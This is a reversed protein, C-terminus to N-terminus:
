QTEESVASQNPWGYVQITGAMIARSGEEYYTMNEQIFDKTDQPLRYSALGDIVLWGRPSANVITELDGADEICSINIYQEYGDVCYQGDTGAIDFALWFDPEQEMYFSGVAPWTDIVIDGEEFNDNIFSYALKFDPQPATLELWHDSQPLFSFGAGYLSLGVILVTLAPSLWSKQLASNTTKATGGAHKRLSHALTDCIYTVTYAFYIFLIPTILYLYRFALMKVHFCIFYFPIALALLLLLSTKADRKFMIVIGVAGLYLIVPLIETLYDTYESFYNMKIGWASSFVHFCVQGIILLIVACLLFIITQKRKFLDKNIYKRINRINALLLYAAYVLILSFGYTHSLAACITSIITLALLRNNRKQTFLYFLYLSLIYFFQLQQYMRAQRSWAIEIALFTVLFAAILATRKGGIKQAFFFVLPITLTGFIVSPLRAAFETEGFMGMSAAIFGTNLIGHSYFWGSPLIPAGKDLMALAANISYGEDYWLSQQGLDYIRLVFGFITLFILVLIYPDLRSLRTSIM